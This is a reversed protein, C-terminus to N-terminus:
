MRHFLMLPDIAVTAGQNKVNSTMAALSVVADKRKLHLDGFNQNIVKSMAIKGLKEAMHCTVKSDGITGSSISM